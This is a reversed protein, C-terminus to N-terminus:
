ELTMIKKLTETDTAENIRRRIARAGRYGASYWAIHQRMERIATYEGKEECLM